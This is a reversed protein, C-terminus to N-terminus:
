HIPHEFSCCKFSIYIKKIIYLDKSDKHYTNM